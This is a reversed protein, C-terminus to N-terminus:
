QTLKPARFALAATTTGAGQPTLTGDALGSVYPRNCSQFDAITRVPVSDPATKEFRPLAEDLVNCWIPREDGIKKFQHWNGKKGLYVLRDPQGIWNYKGGLKM